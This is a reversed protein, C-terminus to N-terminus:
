TNSHLQMILDPIVCMGNVVATVLVPTVVTSYSVVQFHALDTNNTVSNSTTGTCDLQTLIQPVWMLYCNYVITITVTAKKLFPLFLCDAVLNELLHLVLM